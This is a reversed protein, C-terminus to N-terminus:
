RENIKWNDKKLQDGGTPRTVITSDQYIGAKFRLGKDRVLM